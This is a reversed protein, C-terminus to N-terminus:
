LWGFSGDRLYLLAIYLGYAGLYAAGQRRGIRVGALISPLLVISAALMVWMDLRLIEPPVPLAGALATVGLIGLLNFVNSGLINGVAIDAQRRIAAVLSAALEPLSTGVAIVSLGIVAESVGFRAALIAGNRVLLDAAFPLICGGALLMLINLITYRPFADAMGAQRRHMVASTSVVARERWYNYAQYGILLALTAAGYWPVIAHISLAAIVFLISACLAFASDRLFARHEFHIPNFLATLGLILLVNAINSGVVNGVAIAPRGTLAADLCVVLEPLSTGAAIITSGILLPSVNWHRALGVGGRVLLEGGAALLALGIVIYLFEPM